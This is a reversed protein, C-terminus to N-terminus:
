QSVNVLDPMDAEILIKARGNARDHGEWYWFLSRILEDDAVLGAKECIHFISDTM